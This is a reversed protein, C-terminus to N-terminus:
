KSHKKGLEQFLCVEAYDIERVSCNKACMSLTGFLWEIRSFVMAPYKHSEMFRSANVGHLVHRLGNM